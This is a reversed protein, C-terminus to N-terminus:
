YYQGPRPATPIYDPGATAGQTGFFTRGLINVFGWVSVMVFLAIIGFIIMGRAATRKEEDGGASVYQVVGILFVLLGISIIFPILQNIVGTLTAVSSQMNSFGTSQSGGRNGGVDGLAALSAVPLLLVSSAIIAKLHRKIFTM